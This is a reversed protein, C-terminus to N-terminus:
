REEWARVADDWAGSYDGTGERFNRLEERECEDCEGETLDSGCHCCVKPGNHLKKLTGNKRWPHTM